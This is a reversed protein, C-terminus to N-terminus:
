LRDKQRNGTKKELISQNSKESKPKMCFWLSSYDKWVEAVVFDSTGSKKSAKQHVM